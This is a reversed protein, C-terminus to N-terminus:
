KLQFEPSALAIFWRAHDDPAQNLLSATQKGLVSDLHGLASGAAPLQRTLTLAATAFNVRALMTNSSVWSDNNPWGGVDPPDFLVQGMLHSFAGALTVAQPGTNGLAKLGSVMFEVSSKVLGRYNTSTFEQSTFVERLLTRMDYGSSRFRDALRKVYGGDPQPTVFHVAVKRSIFVATAPQALLQKLVADTNWAQTKGLFKLPAGRYARNPAFQGSAQRSWTPYRRTVGNKQDLTAEVSGDPTPERWGALAAAAARVDDESYNGVGLTFLEMLERSYNENPNAGTSTALDLYRLMAPDTTVKTLMSGLDTLAMNRWTLNQWYIFPDRVGVKRYDSTFHNHWFLTMREAFPTKSTLMHQLWWNQLAAPSVGYGGLLEYPPPQQPPTELLRDITRSYGDSSAQELEAASAGFTTRRLLHNVRATESNLPSVWDLGSGHAGTLAQQVAPALALLRLGGIGAGGAVAAALAQRRTLRGRRPQAPVSSGEGPAAVTM